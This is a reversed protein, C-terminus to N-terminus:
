SLNLSERQIEFFQDIGKQGLDLLKTLQEPRLPQGEATGQVEIFGSDQLMVINLDTDASSDEVYELDLLLKKRVVGVSVAAVFGKFSNENVTQLADYLAICGGSIAATRTGGDAQIVDCDIRITCEGIQDLDVAQRLSRGILRQIEVTRGSQRGQAAERSIRTHGSGPLMGYEATLWGRGTGKLFQPVKTEINATCIVKTNGVAICVSGLSNKSYNREVSIPRLQDYQRNLTRIYM